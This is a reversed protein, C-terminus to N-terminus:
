TMAPNCGNSRSIKGERILQVGGQALPLVDEWFHLFMGMSGPLDPHLTEMDYLLGDVLLALQDGNETRYSLIKM